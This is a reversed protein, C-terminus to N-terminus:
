LKELDIVHDCVAALDPSHTVILVTAGREAEARLADHVIQANSEDLSGTPEDALILAPNKSTARALGVRQAEGGSLNVARSNALHGVGFRELAARATRRADGRSFGALRLAESVNQTATHAPDLAADQFVFGIHRARFRSRDQDTWGASQQGHFWIDGSEPTLLLGITYLLTSKGRGSPGIIATTAGHPASVSIRDLVPPTRKSFAVSM